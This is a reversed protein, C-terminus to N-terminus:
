YHGVVCTFYYQQVTNRLLDFKPDLKLSHNKKLRKVYILRSSRWEVNRSVTHMDKFYPRIVVNSLIRYLSRSSKFSDATLYNHAIM